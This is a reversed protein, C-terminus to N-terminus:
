FIYITTTHFHKNGHLLKESALLQKGSETEPFPQTQETVISNDDAYVSTSSIFIIKKITSKEIFPVVGKIKAVFSENLDKRLKPPIAIILVESDQLFDDIKGEVKEGLAILFPNIGAEELIEIKSSTTTSGKVTYGKKLLYQALPLGLWGCGLISIQKL